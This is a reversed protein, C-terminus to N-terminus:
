ISFTNDKSNIKRIIKVIIWGIIGTMTCPYNKFYNGFDVDKFDYKQQGKSTLFESGRKDNEDLILKPNKKKYLKDQNKSHKTREDNNNFAELAQKYTIQTM